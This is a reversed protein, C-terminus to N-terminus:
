FCNFCQKPRAKFRESHYTVYNIRIYKPMPVCDVPLLVTKSAENKFENGTQIKRNFRRACLIRANGQVQAFDVSEEMTTDTPVMKLILQSTYKQFPMYPKLSKESFIPDDLLQNAVSIKLTEICVKNNGVNYLDHISNDYKALVLKVIYSAELKEKELNQIHILYLPAQSRSFKKFYIDSKPYVDVPDSYTTVSSYVSLNDADQSQNSSRSELYPHSQQELSSDDDINMPTSDTTSVCDNKESPPGSFPSSKSRGCDAKKQKYTLGDFNEEGPELVRKFGLLEEDEDESLDPPQEVQGSSYSSSDDGSGPLEREDRNKRSKAMIELQEEIEKRKKLLDDYEDVSTKREPM